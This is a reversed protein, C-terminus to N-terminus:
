KVIHGRLVTISAKPLQYRADTGGSVTTKSARATLTPTAGEEHWQYGV